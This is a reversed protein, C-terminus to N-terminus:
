EDKGRRSWEIRSKLVLGPGRRGLDFGIGLNVGIEGPAALDGGLFLQHIQPQGRPRATIGSIEGYYEVSPSFRKREYRVLLAPEFNWGRAVDPGKWAREFVPNLDVQFRGFRRELIPRLEVRRANAEFTRSQFSLEAVFGLKCPLGWAEPAYLHPLIRWGAFAPASGPSRATLFMFGLAAHDALGFTPELTLHVQDHTPAVTGESRASGGLTGNLHVELSYAGRRLPEYEYVHIEFLDVARLAHPGVLLAAAL